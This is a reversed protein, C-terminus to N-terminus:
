EGVEGYTVGFELYFKLLTLAEGWGASCIVLWKLSEPEDTYGTETLTIMTGGSEAKLDFTVTTPRDKSFTCWQFAFRENPVIEVIPCDEDATVREAGFNVWRLKLIGGVKPDIESGKTFWGDWGAATTLTEFVAKPPKRIFTKYEIQQDLLKPM